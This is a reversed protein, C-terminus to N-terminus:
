NKAQRKTKKQRKSTYKSTNKQDKRAKEQDSDQGKSIKQQYKDSHKNKQQCTDPTELTGCLQFLFAKLLGSEFVLRDFFFLKFM